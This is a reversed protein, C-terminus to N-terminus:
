DELRKINSFNRTTCTGLRGLAYNLNLGTLLDVHEHSFLRDRSLNIHM